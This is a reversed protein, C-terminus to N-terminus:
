RTFARRYRWISLAAFLATIVAGWVFALLGEVSGYRKRLEHTEIAHAAAVTRRLWFRAARRVPVM